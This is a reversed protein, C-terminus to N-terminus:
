RHIKKSRHMTGNIQNYAMLILLVVAEQGLKETGERINGVVISLDM